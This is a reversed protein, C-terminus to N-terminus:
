TAQPEDPACEFVRYAITSGRTDYQAEAIAFVSNIWLYSPSGTRFTMASFVSRIFSGNAPPAALGRVDFFVNAGDDTTIVGHTDPINVGDARHTARNARRLTGSLRDGAVVGDGYVFAISDGGVLPGSAVTSSQLNTMTFLPVLKM